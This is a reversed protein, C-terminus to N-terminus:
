TLRVNAGEDACARAHRVCQCPRRLPATHTHTHTHTRTPRHASAYTYLVHVCTCTPLYFDSVHTVHMFHTIHMVSTTHMVCTMPTMNLLVKPIPVAARADLCVLESFAGFASYAIWDGHKVKSVGEGCREVRGVAEFGTDFPPQVGPAYVGNTYNVAGPLGRRVGVSCFLTRPRSPSQSHSAM